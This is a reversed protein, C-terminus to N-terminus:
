GAALDLRLEARDEHGHEPVGSSSSMMCVAPRSAPSSFSSMPSPPATISASQTNSIASPAAARRARRGLVLQPAGALRERAGLGHALLVLADLDGGRGHARAAGALRDHVLGLTAADLRDHERRLLRGADAAAEPEAALRAQVVREHALRRAVHELLRRAPHDEGRGRGLLRAVGICGTGDGPGSCGSPWGASPSPAAGDRYLARGINTRTTPAPRTPEETAVEASRAPWVTETSSSSGSECSRSSTSSPVDHSSAPPRKVIPVASSSSASISDPISSASM